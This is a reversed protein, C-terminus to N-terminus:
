IVPPLNTDTPIQCSKILRSDLGQTSEKLFIENSSWEHLLCLGYSPEPISTSFPPIDEVCIARSLYSSLSGQGCCWVEWWGMTTQIRDTCRSVCSVLPSLHNARPGRNQLGMGMLPHPCKAVRAIPIVSAIEQTRYGNNSSVEATVVDGQM